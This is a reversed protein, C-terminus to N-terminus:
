VPIEIFYDVGKNPKTTLYITAQMLEARSSINHLGLGKGSYTILNKNFGIGNDKIRLLINKKIQSICFLIHTAGAHKIINNMIEQAILFLHITKNKPFSEINYSYDVQIDTNGTFMDIMERFSEDLEKIKLTGPMINFSIRRVDNVIDDIQRESDAIIKSDREDLPTLCQLHIKLASISAGVSDHLDAAIRKREKDLYDYEAKIKERHFAVKKRQYRIINIVFFAVMILFIVIGILLAIYIKTERPDM